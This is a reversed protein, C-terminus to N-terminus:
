APGGAPFPPVSRRRLLVWGAASLALLVLATIQSDSLGAGFGHRGPDARLFEIGFRWLSYGAVFGLTVEGPRRSRNSLVRLGVFLALGLALEYLQTPHVAKADGALSRPAFRVGPFGACPPGFCCGALFCGVKGVAFGLPLPAAGADLVPLVPLKKVRALLAVALSGGILGGFFGSGESWRTFLTGGSELGRLWLPLFYFLRAGVAGGVLAALSLDFLATGSVGIEAMKRRSLWATLALGLFAFLEMPSIAFPGLGVRFPAM